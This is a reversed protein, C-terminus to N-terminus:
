LAGHGIAVHILVNYLSPSFSYRRGQCNAKPKCVNKDHPAAMAGHNRRRRGDQPGPEFGLCEM